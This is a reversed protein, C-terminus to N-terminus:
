TFLRKADEYGDEILQQITDSSYDLIKNSIDLEINRTREIRIVNVDFRGNILDKYKREIGSRHKSRPTLKSLIKKIENGPVNSRKSLEIFEKVLSVYDSVINANKEDNDTKDNLLLDEKRDKVFDHDWQINEEKTSWVDIIYVDLDPVLAGEQDKGIVGYWYDKHSQILERLPTNSLIGGDWFYRTVKDFSVNGQTDISKLKEVDNITTYAYNIPVSGSAMVYDSIIGNPYSIKYKYHGKKRDKNDPIFEGYESEMTNRSKDKEYSDFTVVSGDQVDVSVLLLRPQNENYKTTIPFTAYKELSQKLPQNSYVYWTNNIPVSFNDFFRDDFPPLGNFPLCPTSFKPLYVHPVGTCLFQKASYYRRATEGTATNPYLEKQIDWQAIWDKKNPYYPYHYSLDPDTSVYEWFANLKEVSGEWTGKEKVHSVLIAANMAGSSTGAVVNFLARRNKGNQKDEKSLKNYLARFVGADYAGLAGGGQLVLARQTGTKENKDKSEANDITSIDKDNIPSMKNCDKKITM